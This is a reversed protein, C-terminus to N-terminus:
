NHSLTYEKVLGFAGPLKITYVYAWFYHYALRKLAWIVVHLRQTFVKPLEPNQPSNLLISRALMRRSDIVCFSSSALSTQYNPWAGSAGRITLYMEMQSALSVSSHGDVDALRPAM